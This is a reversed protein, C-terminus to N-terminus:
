GLEEMHFANSIKRYVEPNWLYKSNTAKIQLCELEQGTHADTYDRLKAIVPEDTWTLGDSGILSRYLLVCLANIGLNFSVKYPISINVGRSM